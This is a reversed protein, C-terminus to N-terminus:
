IQKNLYGLAVEALLTAGIPLVSETIDFTPSHHPRAVEDKKAGLYFFASPRKRAMHSFDEGGMQLAIRRVGGVCLLRSAVEEVLSVMTEDNIVSPHGPDIKLEYDGGLSSAVAMAKELETYLQQRIDPDFSRLTGSLSASGPIVNWATGSNLTCVSAVVPQIPDIQRSVISYIASIVQSALWIPDIAQHPYAGHGAQGIIRADFRDVAATLPGPRTFITDARLTSEVHLAVVADVEDLVGEELMRMGGSKGESDKTEEGPQFIFHVSGDINDARFKEELLMVAGLLCAVHADHGCAHMIGANQSKYPVDNAEEIPLADMDARLGIAPRGEGLKGVVGTGGIGSTYPVGLAKLSSAVVAATRKEQFSLEPHMHLDRRISVLKQVFEEPFETTM